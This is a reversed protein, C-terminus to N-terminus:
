LLSPNGLFSVFYGCGYLVTVTLIRGDPLGLLDLLRGVKCLEALHRIMLLWLALISASAIASIRPPRLTSPLAM